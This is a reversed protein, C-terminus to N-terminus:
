GIFPQLLANPLCNGKDCNRRPGEQDSASDDEEPETHESSLDDEQSQAQIIEITVEFDEPGAAGLPNRIKDYITIEIQQM